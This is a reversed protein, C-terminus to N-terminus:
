VQPIELRNTGSRVHCFTADPVGIGTHVRAPDRSNKTKRNVLLPHQLGDM